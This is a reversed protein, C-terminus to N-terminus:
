LYRIAFTEYDIPKILDYHIVECGVGSEKLKPFALVESVDVVELKESLVVFDDGHYRFITSNPWKAKLYSAFDKILENGENWSRTKNFESFRKLMFMNVSHYGEHQNIMMQLYHENYVGTLNDNFFYSFRQRELESEPLQSTFDLHTDRLVVAAVKAVEPHFQKGSLALIEDISEDVSLRAKYIRNTTMADFADAVILIHALLPIQEDKLGNPYGLGDFHEHHYQVLDALGKYMEINSLMKYGASVHNKILTYELGSLKGPKLLITDPTAIKGIDHLIAAKELLHVESEEFGMQTAMLRCYKAVRLTHGATYADRQEIMSVFALITEEYNSLQKHQLQEVLTRQKLISLAMSIDRSLNELIVLEEADFGDERDSFLTLVGVIGDEDNGFVPLSATAKIDSGLRGNINNEHSLKLTRACVFATKLLDLEDDELVYEDKIILSEHDGQKHVVYLKFDEAISYLVVKYADHMSLKNLSTDIISGMSYSVILSENVINVTDLLSKLYHEHAYLSQIEKTREMVKHELSSNLEELKDNMKMLRQMLATIALISLFWFLITLMYFSSYKSEILEINKRYEHLPVTVVIGGRIDGIKYGKHCELCMSQVRLVGIFAFNKDNDSIEYYKELSKNAEFAELGRKSFGSARNEPNKPNVSFIGFSYKDANDGNDKEFVGGFKNHWMRLSSINKYHGSAEEVLMSKANAIQEIKASSIITLVWALGVISSLVVAVFFWIKKINL